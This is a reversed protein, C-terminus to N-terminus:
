FSVRITGRATQDTTRDSFQGGYTLGLSIGEDLSLDFGAELAAADRGIPAGTVAFVNGGAFSVQADPTVTGFTHRWGAMGRLTGALGGLDVDVSPRVGLTAVMNETTNARVTLAAAGGAETFASTTLGVYTLNAFPELAIGGANADYGLEGFVQTTGGNYLGRLNDTFSGIALARDTNIGDFSYSAGLRLAVQDIMRGGYLGLHYDNSEGVAGGSTVAFDAHSYGGFVGLRWEEVPVDVGILVGATSHDLGAANGNGSIGGWGGFGQEWISLQRGGCNRQASVQSPSCMVDRLRDFAADRVYLGNALLAGQASTAAQGALQDFAARASPADPLNLVATQVPDSAPMATVATAVQQENPTTAVSALSQTQIVTLYANGADYSDKFALFASPNTQGSLTYTGSLGGTASLVRYVTGVQYNGPTYPTVNLVAGSQVTATGNVAILDAASSNPDVEVRYTSGAAQVFAGNVHLTGISNGPAITGGTQITAAGVTGNGGLSAGNQVTVASSALSGNVSLLGAAVTTPGNLLGTGVYNLRGAGLKTFSGSGNIANAFAADTPQNIALAANDAIAGSGFSTASGTLTGASITTGGGFTNTGSLTTTGTGIQSVQGSGGIAGLFVVADSRNFALVGNDIVNGAISGATGGAGIQLTGAGITTSGVADDATLVLTGAGLKTLGGGSLTQGVTFVNGADAIDFGGGNTGWTITRPTSTFGAGTVQLIGGNFNLVGAPDGLNGDGAVSLTGANLNTGGSYSNTGTLITIGSGAQVVSGTGGIAGAYTTSGSDNFTLTANNTVDGLISGNTTGDGLRLTGASITWPTAVAGAGTLTWVSNGTKQFINFNQYQPGIASIDFSANDDGGLILSNAAAGSNGVVKGTIVSGQHLELTLNSPVQMLIATDFGAGAAITGSNVLSVPANTAGVIGTNMIAAANAGGVISGSNTMSGVNAHVIIGNGGTGGSGDGGKITGHNILPTTISVNGAINVGWGGTAGDGGLITGDNVLAIFGTTTRVGDGGAGTSGNGGKITGGNTVSVLTTGAAMVGIGGNVGDGGSLTAGSNNTLSSGQSINAGVGGAGTTGTGASITGNNVITATTGVTASIGYGGVSGNGGRLTGGNTFTGGQMFLGGGGTGAANGALISGNNTLTGNLMAAGIGATGTGSGDGATVVADNIVAGSVFLGYQGGTNGGNNVGTVTGKITVIGSGGGIDLVGKNLASSAYSALFTYSGSDLTLDKTVAPLASAALTVNNGLTIISSPDGDGNATGIYTRLSSDDTATYDGALAPPALMMALALLSASSLSAGLVHKKRETWSPRINAIGTHSM